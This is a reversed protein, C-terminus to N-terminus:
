LHPWQSTKRKAGVVSVLHAIWSKTVYCGGYTFLFVNEGQPEIKLFEHCQWRVSVGRIWSESLVSFGRVVDHVNAIAIGLLNISEAMYPPLPFTSSDCTHKCLTHTPFTSREDNFKGAELWFVNVESENIPETVSSPTALTGPLCTRTKLHSICLALNMRPEPLLFHLPAKTTHFPPFSNNYRCPARRVLLLCKSPLMTYYLERSYHCCQWIDHILRRKFYLPFVPFRFMIINFVCGTLYFATDM